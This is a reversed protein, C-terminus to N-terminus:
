SQMIDSGSTVTLYAILGKEHLNVFTRQLIIKQVQGFPRLKRMTKCMLHKPGIFSKSLSFNAREPVLLRVRTEENVNIM